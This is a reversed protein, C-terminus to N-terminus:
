VYMCVYVCLYMCVCVYLCVCMYVCVCLCVCVCTFVSVCVCMCVNCSRHPKIGNESKLGMHIFYSRLSINKLSTCFISFTSFNYNM